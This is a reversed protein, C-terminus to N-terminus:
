RRRVTEQRPPSSPTDDLRRATVDGRPSRMVLRQRGRADAVFTIRTETSRDLDFTVFERPGTAVFRFRPPVLLFRQLEITMRGQRDEDFRMVHGGRDFRVWVFTHTSGDAGSESGLVDAGAYPGQQGLLYPWTGRWFEREDEFAVKPPLLARLPELDGRAMGDLVGMIVRVKPPPTARLLGVLHVPIEPQNASIVLQGDLVQVSFSRGSPLAYSGALPALERDTPRASAAPPLPFRQGDLIALIRSRSAGTSRNLTIALFADAGLYRRIESTFRGNGGSHWAIPCRDLHDLFWGYGYSGTSEGRAIAPTMARLVSERQLVRGGRLALWWRHLDEVDSIMEGNARTNWWPGELAWPQDDPRGWDAGWREYGHAVVASDLRAMRYGTRMMGAPVFLHDHVYAEYATGSVREVIAGLISYGLNSYAYRTGPASQLTSRAARSLLSDRTVVDDDDGIQEVLGSAHSLLQAITIERKDAPLSPFFRSLRDDLRLRGNEALQLIAGATFQKTVSGVDFLTRDTVPIRHADDASGYYGKLLVRDGRAVLVAGSFDFSAARELYTNLYRLTSDAVCVACRDTSDGATAAEAARTSVASWFSCVAFAGSLALAGFWGLTGGAPARDRVTRTARGM